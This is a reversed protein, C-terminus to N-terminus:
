VLAADLAAEGSLIETEMELAWADLAAPLRILDKETTLIAAGTALARSRIEELEGRAFRHHDPFAHHCTLEVGLARLKREFSAPRAIGSVAVARVGKLDGLAMRAGSSRRVGVPRYRVRVIPGGFPPLVVPVAEGEAARVWLLQARGLASVPERLPGRPLLHGNGIGATEDIAVIELDRRLARHQLGDDLLVVQAGSEDRAREALRRRGSGVWLTLGPCKQAILLPEDGVESAAPGTGDAVASASFVREDRITRGYGRSVVCVRLGRALLRRALFIVAPTKGTGGVNLNGVSIVRVGAVKQTRLLGREYLWGRAQVAAGFVGEAAGLAWRLPRQPPEQKESEYWLRQWDM